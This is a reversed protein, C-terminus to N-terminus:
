GLMPLCGSEVQKKELWVEARMSPVYDAYEPYLNDLRGGM